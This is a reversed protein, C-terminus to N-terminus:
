QCSFEVTHIPFLQSVHIEGFFLIRTKSNTNWYKELDAKKVLGMVLIHAIFVKIDGPTTDIWSNLRCHKKYDPHTRDTCRNGHITQSKCRAYNNTADALFQGCGKM